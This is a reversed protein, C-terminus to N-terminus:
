SNKLCLRLRHLRHNIYNRDTVRIVAVSFLVRVTRESEFGFTKPLQFASLTRKVAPKETKGCARIIPKKKKEAYRVTNGTGGPKGNWVALLLDCKDAMYENRQEMCDDTYEESVSHISDCRELIRAYRDRYKQSWLLDQERNPIAAELTSDQYSDKLELVLEACIMDIGIAMGSIIHLINYPKL